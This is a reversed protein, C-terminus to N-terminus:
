IVFKVLELMLEVREGIHSLLQVILRISKTIIEVSQTLLSVAEYSLYVLFLRQLEDAGEEGAQRPILRRVGDGEVVGCGSRVM